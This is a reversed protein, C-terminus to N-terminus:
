MLWRLLLATFIGGLALEATTKFGLSHVDVRSLRIHSRRMRIAILVAHAV